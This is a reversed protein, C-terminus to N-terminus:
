VANRKNRRSRTVSSNLSHNDFPNDLPKAEKEKENNRARRSRTSRMPSEKTEEIQNQPPKAMEKRGRTPGKVSTSDQGSSKQRAQRKQKELKSQMFGFLEDKDSDNESDESM